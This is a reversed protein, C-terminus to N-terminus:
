AENREGEDIEFVAYGMGAVFFVMPRFFDPYLFSHAINAVFLAGIGIEFRRLFEDRIKHISFINRAMAFWLFLLSVLGISGKEAAVRLFTNHINFVDGVHSVGPKFKSM